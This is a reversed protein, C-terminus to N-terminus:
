LKQLNIAPDALDAARVATGQEVLRRAARLDRPSNISVVAEIAADRLYFLSFSGSAPRRACRSRALVRAHRPDPYEVRVSRVLVVAVSRAACRRRAGGEGRRDGPGTREALM